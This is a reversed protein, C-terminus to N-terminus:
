KLYCLRLYYRFRLVFLNKGYDVFDSDTLFVKIKNSLNYRIGSYLCAQDLYKSVFCSKLSTNPEFLDNGLFLIFQISIKNM